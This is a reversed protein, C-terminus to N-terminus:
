PARAAAIGLGFAPQMMFFPFVLTAIGTLLAPGATPRELWEPGPVAILGAAFVVGSAYHIAWSRSPLRDVASSSVGLPRASCRHPPGAKDPSIAGKPLRIANPQETARSLPM